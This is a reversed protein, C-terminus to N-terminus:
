RGACPPEKTCGSGSLMGAICELQDQQEDLHGQMDRRAQDSLTWGLPPEINGDGLSFEFVCGGECRPSQISGAHGPLGRVFGLANQEALRGRAQRTSLLARVPSLLDTLNTYPHEPPPLDAAPV